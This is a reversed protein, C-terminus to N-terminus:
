TFLEPKINNLVVNIEVNDFYKQVLYNRALIKIKQDKEDKDERIFLNKNLKDIEKKAFELAEDYEAKVPTLFKYKRLFNWCLNMFDNISGKEKYEKYFDAFIERTLEAEETPSPKSKQELEEYSKKDRRRIVDAMTQKRYYLYSDLVKGVYMASFSGYFDVDDLKRLISLNIALELEKLTLHGFNHFIFDTIIALEESVDSKPIGVYVRWKSVIKLLKTIDSLNSIIESEEVAKVIQLEENTEIFPSLNNQKQLM